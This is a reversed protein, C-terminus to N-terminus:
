QLTDLFMQLEDAWNHYDFRKEACIRAAKRMVLRQEGSINCARIIAGACEEPTDNEFIFANEADSLYNCYDGIKNCIPVIGWGMLEPLKSPFNAKTVLNDPRSILLYDMKKYLELLEEYNMWEHIILHSGLVDILDVKESLFNMLSEKKVGTMHFYINKLTEQPLLALGKLMTVINDKYFPNGPYILHIENSSKVQLFEQDDVDSMPPFISVNRKQNLYYEAITSSIAIIGDAKIALSEFTKKSSRYKISFSGGKYQFPQHWEVVDIITKINEKKCYNLLPSVFRSNSGYLLVLDNKRPRMQKLMRLIIDGGFLKKQFKKISSKDSLPANRYAIGKYTKENIGDTVSEGFSLVTVNNDKLKLAQALYLIRNSGADGRPFIGDICIIIRRDKM